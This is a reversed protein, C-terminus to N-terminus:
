GLVHPGNYVIDLGQQVLAGVLESGNRGNDKGKLPDLGRFIAM